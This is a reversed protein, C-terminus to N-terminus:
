KSHLSVLPITVDEYPLRDERWADDTLDLVRGDRQIESDMNCFQSTLKEAKNKYDVQFGANTKVTWITFISLYNRFYAINHLKNALETCCVRFNYTCVSSQSTAISGCCNIRKRRAPFVLVLKQAFLKRFNNCNCLGPQYLSKYKVKWVAYNYNFCLMSMDTYVTTPSLLFTCQIWEVYKALSHTAHIARPKQPLWLAREFVPRGIYSFTSIFPFMRYKCQNQNCM